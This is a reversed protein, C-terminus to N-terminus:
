EASNRIALLPSVQNRRLVIMLVGALAVISGIAMKADVKDGMLTVGLGITVLPIMLTLASVLNAENRRMVVYYIGHSIISVVVCVYALAAAFPWGAALGAQVQGPELPVTLVMLPWLSAFALWAQYQMPPVGEMRKMLVSGLSSCAASAVVFLLGPSLDFGKPDWMVTLVGALALAMGLGRRWHIREGLMVMSLLTTIPTGIQLVIVAASPSSTKLGMFLLAFNGAGMLLAVAVLRWRPRPMPFLFPFMFLTVIACRVAAYFLPPVGLHDVVFKSVLNNVGWITCVLMLLAFDRLSM